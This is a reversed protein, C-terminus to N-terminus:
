SAVSAGVELGAEKPPRCHVHSFCESYSCLDADVSTGGCAWQTAKREITEDGARSSKQPLWILYLVAIYLWSGLTSM